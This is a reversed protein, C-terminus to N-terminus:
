KVTRSLEADMGANNLFSSQTTGLDSEVFGEEKLVRKAEYVEKFCCQANKFFKEKSKFEKLSHGDKEGEWYRLFHRGDVLGWEFRFYHERGRGRNFVFLSEM